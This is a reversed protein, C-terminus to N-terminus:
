PKGCTGPPTTNGPKINADIKKTQASFEVRVKELYALLKEENKKTTKVPM